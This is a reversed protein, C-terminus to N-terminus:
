WPNGTAAEGEQEARARYQYLFKRRLLGAPDDPIRRLWQDAAQRSELEEPTPAEDGAAAATADDPPPQDTADGAQAAAEARYDDAAQEARDREAQDQAMGDDGAPDANASSAGDERGETDQAAGQQGAQSQAGEADSQQQDADSGQQQDDGDGSQQEQQGSQDGSQEQAQDQQSEDQGDASEDEAGAQEGTEPEGSEQQEAQDSGSQQAQDSKDGQEGGDSQQQQEQEQQQQQQQQELLQEIQAKNHLADAMDPARTLAEDYAAIADELSGTAALANGRNYHYQPGDGAAFSEVAADYDGLRYSATGSRLPDQALERAREYDADALAHAAQQDRRQWLDDWGFAMAPRPATLSLNAVLLAIAVVWGRRFALAGLPLLALVLWPGLEKWSETLMPDDPALARTTLSPDRLVRNLDADGTTLPSYDGGGAGALAQLAPVDLAAIVPGQSSRVGPVAAGEATGVGIVALRHGAARLDEAARTARQDGADDTLLVVEGRRAGAQQLLATAGAIALDPRSGQVPMIDPALADLMGLLTDADDTLPSVPFADGAFVVLGVQGGEARSLIDVLKYRARDLRTPTLDDALMSRSLDLAVVRASDTRFAPVPEREFTPNALAVVALTWGLALLALPWWRRVGADGDTALVALLRADIVRRWANTASGTRAAAWLLLGLPLLALFWLPSLFHFDHLM